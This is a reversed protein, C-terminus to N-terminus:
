SLELEIEDLHSQSTKIRLEHSQMEIKQLVKEVIRNVKKTIMRKMRDDVVTLEEDIFSNVTKVRSSTRQANETNKKAASSMALEHEIYSSDLAKVSTPRSPPTRKAKKKTNQKKTGHSRHLSNSQSISEIEKSSLAGFKRKSLEQQEFLFSINDYYSDLNMSPNSCLNSHSNSLSSWSNSPFSNRSQSERSSDFVEISSITAAGIGKSNSVSGKVKIFSKAKTGLNKNKMAQNHKSITKNRLHQVKHSPIMHTSSEYLKYDNIPNQLSILVM